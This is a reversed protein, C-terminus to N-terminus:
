RTGVCVLLESPCRFGQPGQFPTLAEAVAQWTAQKAADDLAAMMMHLAGFADGLFRLFEATSPMSIAGGFAHSEVDRLGAQKFLGEAVGPGGLAFPGPMGPQPPPLKAHERIVKAPISFFPNKDPTSIVLAAVKGGPKVARCQGELSKLPHPFFMLGLSSLAADFSAEPVAVEEGDMERFEVHGHGAARTNQEAHALIGPSLDTALVHGQAGVRAALPLTQAGTGAALELVRSGHKIDALDLMRNLPEAIMANLVDGWANYGSASRDWQSRTAAKYQGPNFAPTETTM